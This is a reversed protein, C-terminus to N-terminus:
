DTPLWERHLSTGGMHTWNDLPRAKDRSYRKASGDELFIFEAFPNEIYAPRAAPLGASRILVVAPELAEGIAKGLSGAKAKEFAAKAKEFAAIQEQPSPMQPPPGDIGSGPEEKQQPSLQHTRSLPGRDEKPQPPEASKPQNPSLQQDTTPAASM